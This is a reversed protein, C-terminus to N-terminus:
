DHSVRVTIDPMIAIRGGVPSGMVECFRMPATEYTICPAPKERKALYAATSFGLSFSALAISLMFILYKNM